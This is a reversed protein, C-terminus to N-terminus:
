VVSIAIGTGNKYRTRRLELEFTVMLSTHSRLFAQSYGGGGRIGVLAGSISNSALIWRIEVLNLM